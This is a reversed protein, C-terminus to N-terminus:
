PIAGSLLQVSEDGEATGEQRILLCPLEVLPTMSEAPGQVANGLAAEKKTYLWRATCMRDRWKKAM